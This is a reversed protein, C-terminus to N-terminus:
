ALYSCFPECDTRNSLLQKLLVLEEVLVQIETIKKDIISFDYQITGTQMNKKIKQRKTGLIETPSHIDEYDSIDMQQFDYEM